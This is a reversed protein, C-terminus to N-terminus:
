TANYVGKWKNLKEMLIKKFNSYDPRLEYRYSWHNDDIFQFWALDLFEDDKFVREPRWHLVVEGEFILGNNNKLNYEKGEINIAWDINGDLQYDLSFQAPVEDIHPGLKPTGFENSYRGFAVAYLKLPSGYNKSAIDNLIKKIDTPLLNIDSLPRVERGPWRKSVSVTESNKRLEKIKNIQNDSFINEIIKPEM